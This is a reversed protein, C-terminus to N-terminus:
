ARFMEWHRVLPELEDWFGEPVAQEGALTNMRAEEPTRAGHITSATQPRQVCWQIAAAALPIGRESCFQQIRAVHELCEPSFDRLLYRAGSRPGTALIGREVPTAIVLGTNWREAAPFIRREAIRNLLSWACPVTAADFEGTELYNANTEPDNAAVGIFRVIGDRQLQKLAGFAGGTGMVFEMPLGMPDHIYVIEFREMGLREMSTEVSRMTRDYSWDFDDDGWLHGVKTTVVCRQKLDPRERLAHAIFRESAGGLYLPATDILTSGAELAAHVTRVALDEEAFVRREANGVYQSTLLDQEPIGLSGGGLGVISVELGTRGLVKTRM